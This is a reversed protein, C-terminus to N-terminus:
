SSKANYIGLTDEVTALHGALENKARTFINYLHIQNPKADVLKFDANGLRWAECIEIAQKYLDVTEKSM